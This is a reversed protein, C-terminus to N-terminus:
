CNLFLFFASFSFTELSVTLYLNDLNYNEGILISFGGFM